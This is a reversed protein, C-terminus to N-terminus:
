ISKLTEFKETIFTSNDDFEDFIIDPPIIELFKYCEDKIATIMQHKDFEFTRNKVKKLYVHYNKFGTYSAPLRTKWRIKYLKHKVMVGNAIRACGPVCCSCNYIFHEGPKKLSNFLDYLSVFETSLEEGDVFIRANLTHENFEDSNPYVINLELKFTNM